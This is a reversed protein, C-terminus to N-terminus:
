PHCDYQAPNFCYYLLVASCIGAHIGAEEREREGGERGENRVGESGERGERRVGERWGERWGGESGREV